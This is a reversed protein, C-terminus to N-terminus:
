RARGNRQAAAIEAEWAPRDVAHVEVSRGDEFHVRWLGAKQFPSTISCTLAKVRLVKGSLPFGQRERLKVWCGPRFPPIRTIQQPKGPKWPLEVDDAQLDDAQGDISNPSYQTM